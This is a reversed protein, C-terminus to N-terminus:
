SNSLLDLWQRCIIKKDFFQYCYKICQKQKRKYESTNNVYTIIEKAVEDTTQKVYEKPYILDAGKWGTIMPLSGSAMGESVAQHSGEHDSTSLIFGIHKFWEHVDNGFDDFIISDKYPSSKIRAFLRKYYEREEEKKWVWRVKSPHQGKLILTFREDKSKLKEFIDIAKDPRKRKTHYGLMGLNFMSNKAKSQDFRKVNTTNYILISKNQPLGLKKEVEEKLYPAICIFKDINEIKLDEIYKSFLEQRHLRVILKQHPLKRKSYWVANGLCWEAIIIDAWKLMRLSKKEDHKSHGKWKDFKVKYNTKKEFFKIIDTM